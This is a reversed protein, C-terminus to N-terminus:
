WQDKDARLSHWVLYKQSETAITAKHLRTAAKSVKALEKQNGSLCIGEPVSSLREAGLLIILCMSRRELGYEQAVAM